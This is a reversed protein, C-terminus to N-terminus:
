TFTLCVSYYVPYQEPKLQLPLIPLRSSPQAERGQGAGIPNETSFPKFVMLLGGGRWRLASWVVVAWCGGEGAFHVEIVM